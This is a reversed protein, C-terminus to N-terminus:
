EAEEKRDATVAQLFREALHPYLFHKLMAQRGNEGMKRRQQESLSLLQRFGETLATANEAEVSIGCDYELIWNNPAEVAYLIPKAGMMADMLKNMGIGFRFMDNRIAAVYSADSAQLLTPISRKDIRSLFACNDSTFGMDKAKQQLEEKYNGEGVFALLYRTPDIQAAAELLTDLGYSRTHSGFFSLVFRGEQRARELVKQHTEPLPLPDEWDSLQIGNPVYVFHEPAMGHQVLYDKAHSLVSVVYDANKCFSDEGRQILRIAPNNASLHYLQMPTIPWMDHVEHVLVAKPNTQRALKRMKQAPYTDFPYTSSAIIVDPHFDQVIKKAYRSLKGIFQAVSGLRKIGNKPYSVTKIWQFEVGVITQIELDKTVAPNKKRLHSYNAALIRVHHGQEAWERAFYYPRFEMGMSLSGAYHDIYLINM